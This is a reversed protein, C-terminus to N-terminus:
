PLGGAPGLRDALADLRWLDGRQQHGLGRDRGLAAHLELEGLVGPQGCVPMSVVRHHERDDAVQDVVRDVGGRGTGLRRDHGHAQGGALLVDRDLDRIGTGAHGFLEAARIKVSPKVVLEGSPLRWRPIPSASTCRSTLRAPPVIVTLQVPAVVNVTTSGVCLLRPTSTPAHDARQDDFVVVVDGGDVGGVHPLIRPKADGAVGRGDGAGAGLDPPECGM